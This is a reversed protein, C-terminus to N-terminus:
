SLYKDLWAFVEKWWLLAAQPKLVWHNEDPFLVIRAPVGKGQLVGYLNIGQTVPVRYDKEGHLILTPTKFNPAYRSPSYLDVRAPDTWPAAGYNNPRGWTDDSAFQGMLDYVGAHHILAAFRDTHGLIWGVMYGGYSGGAAAMRKEDIYGQAILWDTAKMIDAFPKDAHNGVIAEAFGQGYGTSGHFNVMAVVYGQGALLAANWRYHFEDQFAGFPGGHIMQVLPWKRSKDFGPPYVVFMHVKDGGAGDFTVESVTGLDLGALRQANFSTLAKPEGGTSPVIFVEAPAALSHRTFVVAKSGAQGGASVGATVGGRALVQPTGGDIPLAWVHTRGHDQANFVVTKGDPTFTWGEAFADWTEAIERIEGTKRDYRALHPFDPDVDERRNRGFVIFRGDPTYRPRNDGAKHGATINRPEGPAGVPQIYLDYNLTQYPPDVANVSYAIERGDPALDWSETPSFFDMERRLGPTLDEVKGSALDVAFIHNRKGDTRYTDWYRLLRTDAIKAQTKDNKQEDVRKQVAPWDDNLDPWTGALFAIRKGDPFWRPDQAGIPLKTAPRAEGGAAFPLIYIQPPADGRKAVFAIQTGDPSWAPSGDSGKSWTLRRPPTSGDAPVVWLDSDGANEEISYRNVAFVVWRGDPSLKPDSVREMAWLDEPTM